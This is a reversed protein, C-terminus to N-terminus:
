EMPSNVGFPSLWIAKCYPCRIIELVRDKVEWADDCSPCQVWADQLHHATQRAPDDAFELDMLERYRKFAAVARAEGNVLDEFLRHDAAWPLIVRAWSGARSPPTWISPQWYRSSRPDVIQFFVAPYWMPYGSYDTDAIYYGDLGAWRGLGYVVHVLGCELGSCGARGSHAISDITRTELQFRLEETLGPHVCRVRM